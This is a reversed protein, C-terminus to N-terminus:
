RMPANDVGGWFWAGLDVHLLTRDLQAYDTTDAGRSLRGQHVTGNVKTEWALRTTVHLERAM